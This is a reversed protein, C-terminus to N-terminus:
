PQVSIQAFVRRTVDNGFPHEQHAPGLQSGVVAVTVKDQLLRYAVRANLVAFGPLANQVNLIQTPDPASPEREVWVTGSVYSVDASVELNVKSRFIVGGNLKLTPAQTCPGCVAAREISAIQQVAGSARLDLGQTANWTLGLEGGLAQYRGPDNDFTSRGLLYSQSAADFAEKAPLPNVASLVILNNVFNLYGAVDWSLGLRAAEGRYGLEFSLLSEPKLARNGQTLVSAGSVGPTPVPLNVYSELFTPQRFASAVMARFAQGEFPLVVVSLRPSPVVGVLPHRDIRFSGVLSLPAVVRWEDQVFAAGHLEDTLGNIYGWSLRKFRGSVGVSLQHRGALDFGQQFLAEADFVNSDLTTKLSRQGLVSYQPGATADLHNWFFRVKVPGATLDVKGYGGVGDLGYNRLLGIGYVETFLRNVGGSVALSVNRNFAYFATLNARASRLALNPDPFASVVDPRGEAFDRSFKDAQQYGVSARYKVGEGGSAVFSGGAVTGNGVFGTAEARPGTGPARTIINVVGLMANAGYLAGAPGRIVEVREIEELGVPLVPWLTVGLFDQYEPRGDILVLVKNNIRQNFGRISLNSSSVGMSMVEAGPVRRLVEPLSLLGSARLEDGTIVTTANPAELSSQSRRAAAVVTEEYPVSFDEVPAVEPSAGAKTAPAEDAAGKREAQEVVKELRETLAALKDLAAQDVAPVSPKPRAPSKGDAPAETKVILPELKAVLARVKEADPPTTALYRQYFAVAEGPRGAAEHARAVNFLVNPHPKIAYAELLETIAEDYRGDTILFMGTKFHRRAEVRPDAYVALAWLGAVAALARGWRATTM